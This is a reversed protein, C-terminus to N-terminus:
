KNKSGAVFKFFEDFQHNVPLQFHKYFVYCLKLPRAEKGTVQM